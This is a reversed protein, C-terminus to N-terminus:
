GNGTRRSKGGQRVPRASRGRAPRKSTNKPKWNYLWQPGYILLGAALESLGMEFAEPNPGRASQSGLAVQQTGALDPQPEVRVTRAGGNSADDFARVTGVAGGLGPQPGALARRTNAENLLTRSRAEAIQADVLEDAKRQTAKSLKDQTYQRLSNSVDLLGEASSSPAPSYGAPSGAVALRHLGAEDAAQFAGKLQGYAQTKPNPGGGGLLKSLGGLVGTAAGLTELIAM